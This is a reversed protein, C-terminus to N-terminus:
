LVRRLARAVFHRGFVGQGGRRSRRAKKGLSAFKEGRVKELVATMEATKLPKTLYDVAGLKMATVAYDFRDYASLFCFRIDPKELYINHALELGNIGDMHIDCVVLDPTLKIIEKQAAFPDTEFGCVEFGYEAWNIINKLESILWEEDDVLYVKLM